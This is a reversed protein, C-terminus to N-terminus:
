HHQRRPEASWREGGHSSGYEDRHDDRRGDRRDDRRDDHRDDRWDRRDHDHRGRYVPVAWGSRIVGPGYFRPAYVPEPRYVVVPAPRYVVVPAPQVYVPAPEYYPQYVPASSIVTGVPPLNIGISWQVNAAQASGAAVTGVALLAAAFATKRNFM